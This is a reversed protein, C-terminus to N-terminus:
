EQLRVILKKGGGVGGKNMIGIAEIVGDFGKEQGIEAYEMPKLEGKELYGELLPIYGEIDKNVQETVPDGSRGIQGLHIRHVSVGSPTEITSWDDTTTFYKQSVSSHSLYSFASSTAQASADFVRSISGGTIRQVETLQESLPLKYNLTANAGLFEVVKNNPPSCSALVKMGCLKAIQVGYQGVAGAAGLVMVWDDKNGGVKKELDLGTGGCLGLAATLAGVGITAAQEVSVNMPRMFTLKEDMIFFEEFTMYGMFGLRTCGFVGDGVKFKKVDPGVEVVIGSADTGLVIPWSEVLLGNQMFNEVPNIGTVLSKVLIQGPGPSPKTLNDVVEFPAGVKSVIVGKM